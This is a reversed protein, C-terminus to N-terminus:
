FGSSPTSSRIKALLASDSRSPPFPSRPAVAQLGANGRGQDRDQMGRCGSTTLLSEAWAWERQIESVESCSAEEGKGLLHRSGQCGRRKGLADQWSGGGWRRGVSRGPERTMLIVGRWPQWRGVWRGEVSNRVQNKMALTLHLTSCAFGRGLKREMKWEWEILVRDQDEKM